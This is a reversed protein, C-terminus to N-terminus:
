GADEPVTRGTETLPQTGPRTGGNGPGRKRATQKLLTELEEGEIRRTERPKLDGLKVNMIRVRKLSVVERGCAECMRRIQRNLGQTLVIRFSKEGTKEVRCAATQKELEQLYVGKGMRKLFADTVPKSVTVEYEKEHRNSAKTVEEAFAGDNTMFILGESDKDLRGVPYLRLSGGVMDVINEEGAFRKATCVVGAPKNVALILKEPAEAAVPKGDVRVEDGEAVQEGPLATHGNVTIRGAEALRDAERRSCVGHESLYKNLRM